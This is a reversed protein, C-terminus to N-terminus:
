KFIDLFDKEHHADRSEFIVSRPPRHSLKRNNQLSKRAFEFIITRPPGQVLVSFDYIIIIRNHKGSMGKGLFVANMVFVLEIRHTSTSSLVWASYLFFRILISPTVTSIVSLFFASISNRSLWFLNLGDEIGCEVRYYNDVLISYQLIPYCPSIRKPHFSSFYFSSGKGFRDNGM